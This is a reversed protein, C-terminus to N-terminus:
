KGKLREGRIEEGIAHSDPEAEVAKKKIIFPQKRFLRKRKGKKEPVNRIRLIAEVPEPTV